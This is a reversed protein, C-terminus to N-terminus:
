IRARRPLNRGPASRARDGALGAHERSRRAGSTGVLQGWGPEHGRYAPPGPVRCRLTAPLPAAPVGAMEPDPGAGRNRGVPDRGPRGSREPLDRGARPHRLPCHRGPAVGRGASAGECFLDRDANPLDVRRCSAAGPARDLPEPRHLQAGLSGRGDDQRRPGWGAGLAREEAQRGPVRRLRRVVHPRVRALDAD